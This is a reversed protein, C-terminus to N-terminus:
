CGEGVWPSVGVDCCGFAIRIPDLHIWSLGLIPQAWSSGLIPGDQTWSPHLMTLIPGLYAGLLGLYAWSLTLILGLYAWSPGLILGLHAWRPDLAVVVIARCSGSDEALEPWLKGIDDLDPIPRGRPVITFSVEVDHDPCAKATGPWPPDLLAGAGRDKASTSMPRVNGCCSSLVALFLAIICDFCALAFSTWM